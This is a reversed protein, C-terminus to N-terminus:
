EIRKRHVSPVIVRTDSLEIHEKQRIEKKSVIAKNEKLGGITLTMGNASAKVNIPASGTLM